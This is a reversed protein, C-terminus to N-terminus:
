ISLYKRAATFAGGAGVLIGMLIMITLVLGLSYGSSSFHFSEFFLAIYYMSISLPIYALLAGGLGYASGQLLFPLRIYWNGVGMMRMIEIERGRAEILLHITNSIIFLTMVGLFISIVLGVASLTNAIHKLKRLFEKAYKVSEVTETMQQINMVVSEIYKQDSVKLHITDPLPNEIDAVELNKRLEEWALEKPVIEIRKVNDLDAIAAATDRVNANPKLYVSVEFGSGINQFFLQAEIMSACVTGFISLIAAMTIVIILNMWGTRKLGGWTEELIRRAIRFETAIAEVLSIEAM